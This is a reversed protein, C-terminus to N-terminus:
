ASAVLAAVQRHATRLGAGMLGVGLILATWTAPQSMVAAAHDSGAVPSSALFAIILTKM